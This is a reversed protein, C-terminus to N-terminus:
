FQFYLFPSAGRSALLGVSLLLMAFPWIVGLLGRASSPLMRGLSHVWPEWWPWTAVLAGGALTLGHVPRLLAWVEDSLAWGFVGLQGQYMRWAAALDPARFIVWATLVFALTLLWAASRPWRVRWGAQATARQTVMALGHMGGWLFFNVSDAGHWLGSILMVIMLNLSVRWSPGRSGGLPIYLYDRLWSGLTMHWRRWFEQISQAVYPFDFNQPFRFGLMQGMGQAMVSYGAFDFFLQLGYSLAGLWVDSATPRPLSFCLDVVPALTDAVVVKMSLGLIFVRLGDGIQKLDFPRRHLQKEVHSYRVIPGAILQSFMSLYAAYAVFDREVPVDRRYVDVVYSVSQLVIFSIGIPLVVRDWVWGRDVAALWPTILTEMVLNIYKFFALAGVLLVLTAILLAKRRRGDPLHGLGLGVLWCLVSPAVLAWLYLPSWWAYFAWSFVVIVGNRWRPASAAYVVLFLPFFVTLFELSSFVV